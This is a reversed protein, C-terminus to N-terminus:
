ADTLASMVLEDVFHGRVWALERLTGDLVFGAKEYARVAAANDALVELQVRHLGLDQFAYRLLLRCATTGYGLGRFEAGLGIGLHARRNHTDIDWLCCSGVLEEGAVIAFPTFAEGARFSSEEEGDYARLVEELAKPAYPKTSVQPWTLYDSDWLHLLEIDERTIARLAIGDGTIM